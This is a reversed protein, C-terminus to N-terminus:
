VLSFMHKIAWIVLFNIKYLFLHWEKNLSVLRLNPGPGPLAVMTLKFQYTKSQSIINQIPLMYIFVFCFLPWFSSVGINMFTMSIDRLSSSLFMKDGSNRCPDWKHTMNLVYKELDLRKRSFKVELQKKIHSM